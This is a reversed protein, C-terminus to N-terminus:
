HIDCDSYKCNWCWYISDMGNNAAYEEEERLEQQIEFWENYGIKNRWQNFFYRLDM